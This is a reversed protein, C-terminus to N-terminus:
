FIVASSCVAAPRASSSLPYEVELNGLETMNAIPALMGLANIKPGVGPQSAAVFGATTGESHGVYGLTKYGTQALIYDIQEPIDILGVEDWSYDWFETSSTSLRTHRKSYTNGRKNALWVDFGADALVYGLSQEAGDLLFEDASCVLAHVVLVPPGGCKGNRSCPIRFLKLIYGDSTTVDHEEARFGRSAILETGNLYVDPHLPAASASLLAAALLALTTRTLM